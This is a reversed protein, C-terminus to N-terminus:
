VASSANKRLVPLYGFLGLLMALLSLVIFTALQRLLLEKLPATPTSIQIVGIINGSKSATPQLVVLQETGADNKKM